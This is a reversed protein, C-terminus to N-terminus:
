FIAEKQPRCHCPAKFEISVGVLTEGSVQPRREGEGEIAYCAFMEPTTENGIPFFEWCSRMISKRLANETHVRFHMFSTEAIPVRIWIKEELEESVSGVIEASKM